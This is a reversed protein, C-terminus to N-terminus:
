RLTQTTVSAFYYWQAHEGFEPEGVQTQDSRLLSGGALIQLGVQLKWWLFSVFITTMAESAADKDSPSSESSNQGVQPFYFWM